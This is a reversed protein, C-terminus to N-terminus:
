SANQLGELINKLEQKKKAIEIQRDLEESRRDIVEDWNRNRQAALDTCTDRDLDLLKEAAAAENRPDVWAWGPFQGTALEHYFDPDLRYDAMKSPAMRALWAAEIFWALM